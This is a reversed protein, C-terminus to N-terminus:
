KKKGQLKKQKYSRRIALTRKRITKHKMDYAKKVGYGGFALGAANLAMSGVPIPVGTSLFAATDISTGIVGAGLGVYARSVPTNYRRNIKQLTTWQKKQKLQPNNKKNPKM